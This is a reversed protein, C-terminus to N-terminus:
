VAWAKLMMFPAVVVGSESKCAWGLRTRIALAAGQETLVVGVDGARPETTVALGAETMADSVVSLFDGGGRRIQRLAGRASRYRGRWPSAPDISRRALVWDCVWSCCDCDGWAFPRAAGGALHAALAILVSAM